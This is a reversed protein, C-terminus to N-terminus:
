GAGVVLLVALVGILYVVGMPTANGTSAILVGVHAMAFFLAAAYFPGYGPSGHGSGAREGSAYTSVDAHAGARSRRGALTLVVAGLAVYILFAVPPSLLPM